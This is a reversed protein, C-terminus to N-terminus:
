QEAPKSVHGAVLRWRGNMKVLTDTFLVALDVKSGDKAVGKVITTGTVIATQGYIRVKMNENHFTTFVVDQNRAAQLDDAKTDYGGRSNTLVYGDAVIRDIYAADNRQYAACGDREWQLVEEVDKGSTVQAHAPGSVALVLWAAFASILGAAASATNHASKM